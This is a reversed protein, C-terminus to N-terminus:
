ESYRIKYSTLYIKFINFKLFKSALSIVKYDSGEFIIREVSFFVKDFVVKAFKKVLFDYDLETLLLGQPSIKSFLGSCKWLEKIFSLWRSSRNKNVLKEELSFMEGLKLNKKKYVCLENFKNVQEVEESDIENM